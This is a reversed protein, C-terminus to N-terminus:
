IEITFKEFIEGAIRDAHLASDEVQLEALEEELYKRIIAFNEETSSVQPRMTGYVDFIKRELSVM